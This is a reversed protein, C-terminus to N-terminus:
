SALLAGLNDGNGLQGTPPAVTGTDIHVDVPGIWPGDCGEILTCDTRGAILENIATRVNDWGVSGTHNTATGNFIFFRPSGGKWTWGQAAIWSVLEDLVITWNAVYNARVVNPDGGAAALTSSTADSEMQYVGIGAIVANPVNRMVELMRHKTFGVYGNTPPPDATAATAWSDSATSGVCCPVDVLDNNPLLARMRELMSGGMSQGFIAMNFTGAAHTSSYPSRQIPSAPLPSGDSGSPEFPARLVNDFGLTWANSVVPQVISSNGLGLMNSQGIRPIVYTPLGGTSTAGSVDKKRAFFLPWKAAAWAYIQAREPATLKRNFVLKRFLVLRSNYTPTTSGLTTCGITFRDMTPATFGTDTLTDQNTLTELQGDTEVRLQGSGKSWSVV